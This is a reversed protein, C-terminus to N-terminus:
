RSLSASAVAARALSALASSRSAERQDAAEGQPKGCQPKRNREERQVRWTGGGIGLRDISDGEAILAAIESNELDGSVSRQRIRENDDLFHGAARRHKDNPAEVLMESIADARLVDHAHGDGLHHDVM